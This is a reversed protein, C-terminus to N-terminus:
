PHHSHQRPLNLNQQFSDLSICWDDFCQPEALQVVQRPSLSVLTIIFAMYCAFGILLQALLRRAGDFQHFVACRLAVLLIALVAFFLALFLLDFLNM